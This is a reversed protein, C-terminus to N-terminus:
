RQFRRVRPRIVCDGGHVSERYGCDSVWGFWQGATGNCQRQGRECDGPGSPRRWQFRRNHDRAPHDRSWRYSRDSLGGLGDGLLVTVNASGSNSDPIDLHVNGFQATVIAHPATGVAFPGGRAPTPFGGLGNGLLVTVTGASSGNAVAMDLNGDGNFDGTAIAFPSAGVLVSGSATFGGSGNGQMWTAKNGTTSSVVLDLNGDGNFDGVALGHSGGLGVAFSTGAAFGGAGNGLMVTVTTGNASYALDLKGDNNFDGVVVNELTGTVAYPSGSANIFGGSVNGLLVTLSAATQNAVVLDLIGDGNFDGAAM